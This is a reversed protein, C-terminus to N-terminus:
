RIFYLIWIHYKQSIKENQVKLYVKVLYNGYYMSSLM